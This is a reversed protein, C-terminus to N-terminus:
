LIYYEIKLPTNLLLDDSLTGSLDTTSIIINGANIKCRIMSTNDTNPIIFAALKSVNLAVGFNLSYIGADIRSLTFTLGGNIENALQNTITPIATGSQSLHLTTVQNTKVKTNNWDLAVSGDSKLLQRNQWDLSSNGISDCLYRGGWSLSLHGANDIGERAAWRLGTYGFHDILDNDEWKVVANGYRDNM